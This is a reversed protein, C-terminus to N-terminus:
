KECDISIGTKLSESRRKNSCLANPPYIKVCFDKELRGKGEAFAPIQRRRILDM